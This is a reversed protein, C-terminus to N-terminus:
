KGPNRSLVPLYRIGWLLFALWWLFASHFSQGKLLSFKIELFPFFVRLLVAGQLLGFVTYDIKGLAFGLGGHGRTVRTSIGLLLTSIGGLFFLHQLALSLSRDQFFSHPFIAQVGLIGLFLITWFFALYHSFLLFNSFSKKWKWYQLEKLWLLGLIILLSGQVYPLSSLSPIFKFLGLLFILALALPLTFPGRQVETTPPLTSTFFALIRYSIGMMLFLLYPYQALYLSLGYYPVFSKWISFQFLIQALIGFGLALLVMSSQDFLKKQTCSLYSKLLIRLLNLMLFLELLLAFKLLLASFLSGLLILVQSLFLMLALFINHPGKTQPAAVWKPFATLLFGFIYFSSFGFIMWHFHAQLPSIQFPLYIRQMELGHLWTFWLGMVVVNYIVGLAFFPRYPEIFFGSIHHAATHLPCNQPKM